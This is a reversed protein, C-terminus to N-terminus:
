GPVDLEFWIAKGHGSPHRESGWRDALAGVLLLGRGGEAADGRDAVEPVRPDLDHVEVRLSGEPVRADLVARSRGHLVANTVLESTLLAATECADEGLHAARCFDRIFRRARGPATVDPELELSAHVDLPGM